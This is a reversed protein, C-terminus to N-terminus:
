QLQIARTPSSTIDLRSFNEKLVASTVPRIIDPLLTGSDTGNLSGYFGELCNALTMKGTSQAGTIYIPRRPRGSIAM